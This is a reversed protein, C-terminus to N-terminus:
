VQNEILNVSSESSNGHVYAKGPGEPCDLDGLYLVPVKM